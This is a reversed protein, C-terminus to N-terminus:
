VAPNGVSTMESAPLLKKEMLSSSSAIAGLGIGNLGGAGYTAGRYAGLGARLQNCQLYGRIQSTSAVSTFTGDEVSYPTDPWQCCKKKRFAVQAIGSAAVFASKIWAM